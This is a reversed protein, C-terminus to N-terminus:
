EICTWISGLPGDASPDIPTGVNPFRGDSMVALYAFDDMATFIFSPDPDANYAAAIALWAKYCALEADERDKNRDAFLTAQALNLVASAVFRSGQNRAWKVAFKIDAGRIEPRDGRAVDEAARIGEEIADSCRAHQSSYLSQVRRVCRSALALISRLPLAELQKRSPLELDTFDLTQHALLTMDMSRFLTESRFEISRFFIVSWQPCTRDRGGIIKKFLIRQMFGDDPGAAPRVFFANKRVIAVAM